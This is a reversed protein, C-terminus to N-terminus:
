REYPVCPLARSELLEMHCRRSGNYYGQVTGQWSSSQSYSFVQM